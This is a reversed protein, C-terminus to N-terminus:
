EMGGRKGTGAGPSGGGPLSGHSVSKARTVRIVVSSVNSSRKRHALRPALDKVFMPETFGCLLGTLFTDAGKVSSSVLDCLPRDAPNPECPECTIGVGQGVLGEARGGLM